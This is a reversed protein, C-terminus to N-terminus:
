SKLVALIHECGEKGCTCGVPHGLYVRYKENADLKHTVSFLKEEIQQIDWQQFNLDTDKIVEEPQALGRISVDSTEAFGEHVARAIQCHTCNCHPEPKPLAQGDEPAVIKAIASIKSLIEKPLNPIDSQNENHHLASGLSDFTGFGFTLSSEGDGELLSRNLFPPTKSRPVALFPM